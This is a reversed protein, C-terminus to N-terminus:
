TNDTENPQEPQSNITLEKAIEAVRVVASNIEGCTVGQKHTLRYLQDSWAKLLALGEFGAASLKIPWNADTMTKLEIETM